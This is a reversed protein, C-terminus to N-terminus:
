RTGKPFCVSSYLFCYLFKPTKFWSQLCIAQLKLFSYIIFTFSSKSTCKWLEKDVFLTAKISLVEMIAGRTCMLVPDFNLLFYYNSKTFKQKRHLTSLHMPVYKLSAISISILFLAHQIETPFVIIITTTYTCNGQWAQLTTSHWQQISSVQWKQRNTHRVQCLLLKGWIQWSLQYAHLTAM